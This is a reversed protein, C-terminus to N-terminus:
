PGISTPTMKRSAISYEMGFQIADLEALLCFERYGEDGLAEPTVFSHERPM